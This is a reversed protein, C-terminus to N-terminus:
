ATAHIARAGEVATRTVIDDGLPLAARATDLAPGAGEHLQLRAYAADRVRALHKTV